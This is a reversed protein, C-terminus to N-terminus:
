SSKKNDSNQSVFKNLNLIPRQHDVYDPSTLGASPYGHLHNSNSPFGQQQLPLPDLPSLDFDPSTTDPIQNIGKNINQLLKLKLAASFNKM